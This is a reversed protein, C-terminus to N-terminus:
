NTDNIRMWFKELFIIIFISFMDRDKSTFIIKFLRYFQFNVLWFLLYMFIFKIFKPFNAISSLLSFLTLFLLYWHKILFLQLINMIKFNGIRIHEFNYIRVGVFEIIFSYFIIVNIVLWHGLFFFNCLGMVLWKHTISNM